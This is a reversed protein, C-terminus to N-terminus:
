ASPYAAHNIGKCRFWNKEYHEIVCRIVDEVDRDGVFYVTPPGLDINAVSDIDPWEDISISNCQIHSLPGQSVGLHKSHNCLGNVIRFEDLRYIENFFHEGPTQAELRHDYGPAIWERLHNLGMLIFMLKETSKFKSAKLDGAAKKLADFFISPSSLDFFGTTPM